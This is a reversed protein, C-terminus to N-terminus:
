RIRTAYWCKKLNTKTILNDEEDYVVIRAKYYYRTGKKADTNTYPAGLTEFKYKYNKRMETSRYFQYKLTYGMDELAKFSDAGKTIKLRVKINGKATKVSRAKLQIKSALEKVKALQEASTQDTSDGTEENTKDETKDAPKYYGGSSPKTYTFDESANTALTKATGNITVTLGEATGNKITIARSSGSMTAFLGGENKTITITAGNQAADIAAQLTAYNSKGITAAAPNEVTFIFESFGHPNTFTAYYASEAVEAEETKETVAATYIYATGDAKNHKIYVPTETNTVFGDPLQVTLTTEETVTLPNGTSVTVVTEAEEESEEVTAKAKLNYKPTIDMTLEKTTATEGTEVNLSKVEVDLYPEKILTITVNEDGNGDEGTAKVIKTTKNETDEVVKVQGAAILAQIVEQQVATDNKVEVKEAAKELATNDAETSDSSGTTKVSAAVAAADAQKDGAVETSVASETNGAKTDDAVTASGGSEISDMVAKKLVVKYGDTVDETTYGTACYDPNDNNVPFTGAIVGYTTPREISGNTNVGNSDNKTNWYNYDLNLGSKATDGISEVKFLEGETEKCNVMVNNNITIRTGDAIHGFRFVRDGINTFYNGTITVCGHDVANTKSQIAIANHYTNKFVSNKVTIGKISRTYVGQYCESFTCGDVVLNRVSQTESEDSCNIAQYEGNDVSNKIDFICNRFTFGDVDTEKNSTEIHSKATFTIGEFTVNGVDQALYYSGVTGPLEADLVYDYAKLGKEADGHVHGSTMEIGNVKVEDNARVTVNEITRKYFHVLNATLAEPSEVPTDVPSWGTVQSWQGNYWTTNSGTYKTARGLELKGYTGASLEITTNDISGYKGDLLNQVNEPTVGTWVKNTTDLSPAAPETGAFAMSPMFCAIMLMSMIIAFLKKKKM